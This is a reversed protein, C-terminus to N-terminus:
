LCMDMNYLILKFVNLIYVKDHISEIFPGLDPYYCYLVLKYRVMALFEVKIHKSILAAM